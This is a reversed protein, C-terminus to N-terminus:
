SSKLTVLADVQAARRAPLLASLLGICLIVAAVGVYVSTDATSMNFLVSSFISSAWWAAALGVSLGALLYSATQLLVDNGIRRPTAGLAVRIGIERTRQAVLSSMVGYVGASGIGLALLGFLGMLAANFRRDATIRRFAEDVVYVDPASRSAGVFRGLTAKVAPVVVAAAGSTRLVFQSSRAQSSIPFYVQAGPPREPGNVRVAGVVGAVVFLDSPGLGGLMEGVPNGAGFLQRAATEDLVVPTPSTGAASEFTQGAVFAMGVTEFYEPSVNRMEAGIPPADTANLRRLTTSSSGGGFGSAILPPSSGSIQAVSVVGPTQRLAEGVDAATTGSGAVSGTALLRTRDFGLDVRTVGVFSSVFLTSAVLLTSVFGIQVVLFALRWRRPAWNTTATEKLLGVVDARSAFWAPVAGFLAGTVLAAIIAVAFVRADIGILGSRAVGAPLNAKAVSVGWVAVLLGLAAASLALVTSEMLLGCVLTRRSAGLSSRIALERARHTSRTLLLNACNACAVAMVLAVAWLVLLMWGRVNGVLSDYLPTIAPPWDRYAKPFAEKLPLTAADLQAAVETPTAQPRLRGVVQLYWSLGHAVSLLEDSPAVYPTWLEVSRDYGIPYTFGPPMVGIIEAPGSHLALTQGLVTPSGGFRREWLGYSILAVHEQGNVENEATFTRGVLAHVRLVDFLNATTRASLVTETSAGFRLSEQSRTVAALTASSAIGDRWALYEQAAAARLVGVSARSTLVFLEDSRDFPLRRLVVTDVVSFTVTAAAIGLTLVLLMLLSTSPSSRISRAVDRAISRVSRQSRSLAIRVASAVYAMLQAWRWAGPWRPSRGEAIRQALEEDIDGLIADAGDRALTMRLLWSALRSRRAGPRM